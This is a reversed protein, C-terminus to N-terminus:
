TQCSICCVTPKNLNANPVSLQERTLKNCSDSDDGSVVPNKASEVMKDNVDEIVVEKGTTPDTVKQQNEKAHLDSNKHPVADGGGAHARAKRQEDIEHDREKKDRDLKEIFQNITPIKNTGSYHGGPAHQQQADAMVPSYSPFDNLLHLFRPSPTKINKM